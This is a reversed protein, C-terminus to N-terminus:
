ACFAALAVHLADLDDVAYCHALQTVDLSPFYWKLFRRAQLLAINESEELCALQHIHQRFVQLKESVLPRTTEGLLDQFLWPRGISARGIMVADAETEDFCRQMSLRDHVDGNAIVPISVRRVVQRIQDYHAAVDYDETHHRGHVIIADAGAQEILSAVELYRTDQTHGAVRMKVTLPLTTAQRMARVVAQLTQPSEMLASGCGKTRIKLKPCGCNLDIVDPQYGASIETAQHMLEPNNGSLQICWRGEKDSRALYRKRLREHKLMSHASIMETAAYAPKTYLSFLARFPACSIGALPAQILRHPLTLAGIQFPTCAREYKVPEDVTTSLTQM